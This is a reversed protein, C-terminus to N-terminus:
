VPGSQDAIMTLGYGVFVEKCEAAFQCIDILATGLLDMQLGPNMPGHNRYKGDTLKLVRATEEAGTRQIPIGGFGLRSVQLGTKGLTRYQM